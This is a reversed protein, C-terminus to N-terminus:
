AWDEASGVQLKGLMEGVFMSGCSDAVNPPQHTYTQSLINWKLRTWFGDRMGYNCQNTLVSEWHNECVNTYCVIYNILLSVYYLM